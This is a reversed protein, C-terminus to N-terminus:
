GIIKNIKIDRSISLALSKREDPGMSIFKEYTLDTCFISLLFNHFDILNNTTTDNTIIRDNLNLFNKNLSIGVSTDIM